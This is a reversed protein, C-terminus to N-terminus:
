VRYSAMFRPLMQEAYQKLSYSGECLCWDYLLARECLAYTKVIENASYAANLEGKNLGEIVIQRLLKYYTRNHDMLHKDGKTILQSSYLQALLDLPVSNEIMNFLEFNLKLLKDFANMAPDLTGKLQAYKADFLISLSSLLADKGEFYHYFSGKSTASAAIIDEVTTNEYGQEYFLRWAATVIKEKTDARKM